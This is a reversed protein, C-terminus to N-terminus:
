MMVSETDRLAMKGTKREDWNEVFIPQYREIVEKLVEDVTINQMCAAKKPCSILKDRYVSICPSCIEHSCIGKHNKGRPGYLTPTEPGFLGITPVGAIVGMHMPGSDNSVFVQAQSLLFASARISFQGAVSYVKGYPELLRKLTDVREADGNGGILVITLKDLKHFLRKGLKAYYGVPWMREPALSSANPNFVIYNNIRNENLFRRVQQKEEAKVPLPLLSESYIRIGLIDLARLYIRTMHISENYPIVVDFIAKGSGAPVYGVKISRSSLFALIATFRSAVEFDFVIDFRQKRLWLGIRCFSVLASKLSSLDFYVSGDIYPSGEYLGKNAALTMFFIRCNPYNRKLNSLVPSALIISGMGFMKIVLVKQPKECRLVKRKRFFLLISMFFCIPRGIKRDIWRAKGISVM